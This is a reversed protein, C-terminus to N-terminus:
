SRHKPYVSTSWSLIDIHDVGFSDLTQSVLTEAGKATSVDAKVVIAKGGQERITEAVGAARSASTDSIHNIAVLAGNRALTTAICAGIGTEKGSGTIIAVKGNLDLTDPAM